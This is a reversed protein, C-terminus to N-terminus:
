TQNPINTFNGRFGFLIIKINFKILFKHINLIQIEYLVKRKILFIIYQKLKLYFYFYIKLNILYDINISLIFLNIM